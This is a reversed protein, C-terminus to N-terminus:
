IMSSDFIFECGDNDIDDSTQPDLGEGYLSDYVSNAIDSAWESPIVTLTSTNSTNTVLCIIENNDKRKFTVVTNPTSDGELIKVLSTVSGVKMEIETPEIEQAKTEEEIEEEPMVAEEFEPSAKIGEAGRSRAVKKKKVM